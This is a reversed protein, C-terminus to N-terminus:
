VEDLGPAKHFPVEITVRHGGDQAWELSFQHDPGYLTKLREETNRLGIGVRTENEAGLKGSNRIIIRLRGEHASSDIGVTGGEVLAAVGHRVANELLPQLLMSPVLAGLTEPDIMEEIQLREGLRTREIALYQRTFALEDSLQVEAAVNSDLSARLFEGIQSLMRTAASSEGDLVLTSVANLSNLLFHPNLQYRLARLRAERADAEARLLRERGQASQLWQEISFYLTCWLFLVFTRQASSAMWHPWGLNQYGLLTVDIAFATAAGMVVSSAAAQLEFALWTPSQRMLARCVPRLACSGLFMFVVSVTLDRIAEPRKLLEPFSGVLVFVYFGTWGLM